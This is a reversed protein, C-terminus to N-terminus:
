AICHSLVYVQLDLEIICTYVGQLMGGVNLFLVSIRYLDGLRGEMWWGMRLPLWQGLAGCITARGSNGVLALFFYTCM